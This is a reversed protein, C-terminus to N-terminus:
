DNAKLKLTKSIKAARKMLASFEYSTFTRELDRVTSNGLLFEDFNVDQLESVYTSAVLRLNATAKESFPEVKPHTLVRTWAGGCENVIKAATKPGIGKIGAINDAGDGCLAKVLPLETPHIGWKEEVEKEGMVQVKKASNFLIVKVKESVCQLIDQDCTLILVEDFDIADRALTFISDDAEYGRIGVAPIGLAPLIDDLVAAAEERFTDHDPGAVRNAKYSVDEEKRWNGGADYCVVTHTPEYSSIVSILNNTFGYTGTTPRGDSTSLERTARLLANRSRHFLAYFDVLLLRKM